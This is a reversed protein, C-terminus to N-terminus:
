PFDMKVLFLVLTLSGFLVVGSVFSNKKLYCFNRGYSPGPCHKEM